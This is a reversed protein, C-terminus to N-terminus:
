NYINKKKNIRSGNNFNIEGSSVKQNNSQKRKGLRDVEPPMM